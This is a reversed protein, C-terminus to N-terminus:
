EEQLANTPVISGQTTDRPQPRQVKRVVKFAKVSEYARKFKLSKYNRRLLQLSQQSFQSCGHLIIITSIRYFHLWAADLFRRRLFVTIQPLSPCVLPVGCPMADPWFNGDTALSPSTM